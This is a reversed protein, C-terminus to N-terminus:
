ALWEMSPSHRISEEPVDEPFFAEDLVQEETYPCNEPLLGVTHDIWACFDDEPM